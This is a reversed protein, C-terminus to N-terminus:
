SICIKRLIGDNNACTIEKNNACMVERRDWASLVRQHPAGPQKRATSQCFLKPVKGRGEGKGVTVEASSCFGEFECEVFLHPWKVKGPTECIRKFFFCFFVVTSFFRPVRKFSLHSNLFNGVKATIQVQQVLQPILSGDKRGPLQSKEATLAAMKVKGRVNQQTLWEGAWSREKLINM